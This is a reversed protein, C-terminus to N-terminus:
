RRPRRTASSSVWASEVLYNPRQKTEVFIRGVYEGIIGLALLQMGASFLIVSMLSAYGPVDIGLILTRLLIVIFYIFAAASLLMGGFTALRLPATTFSTIGDIALEVLSSYNWKTTGAARPDRDYSICKKRFGILSFLGKTYRQNERFAILADVCKRDLLRFDGTDPQIAVRTLKQLFAYFWQSTKRKLWTEGARSRRQAYVDEWGEEWASIMEPFLEPPDQLDADMIIVADGRAADLGALMATEKGYNRSLEVYSVRSDDAAAQEILEQTSDKSGDNVLLFEFSYDTLLGAQDRLRKMLSAFVDEENFCPILVSLLKPSNDTTENSTDRQFEM